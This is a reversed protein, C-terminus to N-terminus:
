AWPPAAPSSRRRSRRKPERNRAIRSVTSRASGAGSSSFSCARASSTPPPTHSPWGRCARAGATRHLRARRRHERGGGRHERPRANPHGADRLLDPDAAPVLSSCSASRSDRCHGRSRSPTVRSPRATSSCSGRSPSPSCSYARPSRPHDRRRHRPAWSLRTNPRGRSARDVVTREHRAAARHLDLGRLDCPATPVGHLRDHLDATRGRVPQQPRHRGRVRTSQRRRLPRGVGGVARATPRDRTALDFRLRLRYGMFAAVAVARGDHRRRRPDHGAALVTQEPDHHRRGPPRNGRVIAYAIFTGIVVLNNLIPAFMPAAFRRHAQLLGISSRASATSCSRRCSGGSSSSGSSSRRKATPPTRRFWTCVSSRSPSSRAWRRSRRGPRRAGADDRPRRSRPRRGIGEDGDREVFVPVFVSTLIGGLILEYIINPTLNAVTYISGLTSVTVGLAATMATLRLFGTLRSLTTGVTMLAAHRM